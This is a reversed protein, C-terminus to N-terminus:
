PKLPEVILFLADPDRVGTRLWELVEMEVIEGARQTDDSLGHKKAWRGVVEALIAKDDDTMRKKFAAADPM